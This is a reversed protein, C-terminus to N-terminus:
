KKGGFNYAFGIWPLFPFGEIDSGAAHIFGFDAALHEGFFRVGFSMVVIDSNPPIWNESIFKVSNSARAEGGILIVPENEIEGEAFGWGLGMTLAVDSTGYTGMGYLIGVGDENGGTLNAYLLGGALDFNKLQLATVKPALYFLQDEVGPFLTIGGALSLFDAAGVALLPFFIQYASFYGQGAGLARATPAFLLRTHNPDVRRYEGGVIQGSLRTVSKVQDKPIDMIVGSVTKFRMSSADEAEITGIVESGDKLIVKKLEAVSSTDQQALSIDTMFLVVPTLLVMMLSGTRM